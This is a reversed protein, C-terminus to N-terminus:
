GESHVAAPDGSWVVQVVEGAGDAVMVGRGPLPPLDLRPPLGIGLLDGDVPEPRLLLGTGGARLSAAWHGYAARYPGPRAAVVLHVGCPPAAVLGALVGTPDEVGLADDVLVLAPGGDLRALVDGPDAGVTIVPCAALRAITELTSTKGSRPPGLVVLHEGPHLVTEALRLDHDRVAIRLRATEPGAEVSADETVAPIVPALVGVEHPHDPPGDVPSRAAVADAVSRGWRVVQAQLGDTARVVRGAPLGATPVDIGMWLADAPDATRHLLVTGVTAALGPPLDAARRASVAVTLGVAPGESWIREFREHVIRERVPDHARALGGVDDVLLLLRPEIAGSARRRAVEEDLWRLLRVRREHDSPGAVTGAHGLSRLATLAGADLDIVHLHPATGDRGAVVHLAAGALTTTAGAKPGGLVLLHGHDLEWAGVTRCQNDPDDFLLWGHAGGLDDPGIETPLPPPWPSRPSGGGRREHARGISSVLRELDTPASRPAAIRMGDVLEVRAQRDTHGAGFAAQFAVLEGPGFRAYARGPRDRPIAAADPEDIVDVSDHRDTVRLSIRCGANARIDDTVVGAPRQTALVLHVGLSRGRQAIGVLSHLFDPLDAAVSAFEDVVVLLRPLPDGAHAGRRFATLDEAGAARLRRERHRLEAELCRLARAALEDDLDTVVGVVHPLEACCDFAAGGKYDLLVMALRDTDATAAAAAVLSRLLESKGSGTTGGILLHPGDAVLDLIVPGTGDAGIPVCLGAGDRSATWRAEIERPDDGGLGLLTRVSVTAPLGAGTLPLEPDDLRALRRAAAEAVQRGIGWGLGRSSVGSRRPDLLEVRGLVDVRVLTTCGAPLRDGDDVLVIAAAGAGLMRRGVTMRGRFPDRGDLVVILARDAAADIVDAAAAVDGAEIVGAGRRSRPPDTTHPLWRCWAWEDPEDAGVALALDAPGHHVALQLVLCRAIARVARRDGVLGVVHGPTLDVPLPVDPLPPLTAILACAEEAVPGGDPGTLRPAFAADGAGVGVAFADPDDPRREWCRVSPGAARRAVEAPDPHCARQRAIEALRAEGLRCRLESLAGELRALAGDHSRRARRRREWWTAVTLIPGLAAFVAFVPSFLWAVM